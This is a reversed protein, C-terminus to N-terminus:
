RRSRQRGQRRSERVGRHMAKRIRVVEHHGLGVNCAHDVVPEVVQEVPAQRRSVCDALGTGRRILRGSVIRHPGRDQGSAVILALGEDIERGAIRDREGLQRLTDFTDGDLEDAPPHLATVAHGHERWGTDIEDSRHVAHPAGTTHRHDGITPEPQLPETSRDARSARRPDDARFSCQGCRCRQAPRRSGGPEVDGFQDARGRTFQWRLRRAIIQGRHEERRPRGTRCLAHLIEM